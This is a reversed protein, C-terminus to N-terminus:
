SEAMHSRAPYVTGEKMVFACDRLANSDRLLDRPWGAIDALKGPEITGTVESIGCLEANNKTAAELARYPDLGGTLWSAYEWGNEYNHHIAVMDTGYGLKIGSQCIVERGARLRERYQLLKQRFLPELADLEDENAQLIKDYVNFTPVLYVGKVEMKEATQADILSGHEIGAIGYDVLRSVLEATYAHATVPISLAHATEFIAGLEADSLQVDEPGDHPSAFGGTAMLKLFDSGLKVERRVAKVFFDPGDGTGPNREALYDALEPFGRFSQSFDGHSGTTGLAHAAAVIRAGPLHGAAIFRKVDLVHDEQFWGVARITTFGGELSRVATRLISLARWGDSNKITDDYLDAPDVFAPHTHADIMGPTVTLHSLDLIESDPPAAVQPGLEKIISGKILIQQQDYLEPSLGTYLKGCHLVKYELEDQAAM